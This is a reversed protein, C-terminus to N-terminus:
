PSNSWLLPLSFLSSTHSCADMTWSSCPPRIRICCIPTKGRTWSDGLPGLLWINFTPSM